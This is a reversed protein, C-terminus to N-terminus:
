KEALLLDFHTTIKFNGPDGEVLHIRAGAAEVVSADDTFSESFTQRYANKLVTADFCQPTQVTKFRMRNRHRSGDKVVERISDKIDIAPIANGKEMVTELCSMLLKENAFPRCADQVAVIGKRESTEVREKRLSIQHCWRICFFYKDKLISKGSKEWREQEDGPLVVIFVADPWVTAFSIITHVIVPVGALLM